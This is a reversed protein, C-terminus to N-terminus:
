LVVFLFFSIATVIAIIIWFLARRGSRHAEIIWHGCHPCHDSLEYVEAGCAPCRRTDSPGDYASDSAQYPSEDAEDPYEDDRLDDSERTEM